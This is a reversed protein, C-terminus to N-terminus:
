QLKTLQEIHQGVKAVGKSVLDADLSMNSLRLHLQVMKSVSLTGTGLDEMSQTVQARDARYQDGVAGLKNLIADGLTRPSNASSPSSAGPVAAAAPDAAKVASANGAGPVDRNLLSAFHEADGRGVPSTSSVGAGPVDLGPVTGMISARIPMGAM